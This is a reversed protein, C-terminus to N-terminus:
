KQPYYHIKDCFLPSYLKERTIAYLILLMAQSWDPDLDLQFNITSIFLINDIVLNWEDDFIDLSSNPFTLVM